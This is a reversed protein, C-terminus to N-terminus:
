KFIIYLLDMSVLRVRKEFIFDMPPFVMPPHVIRSVTAWVNPMEYLTFIPLMVHPVPCGTRLFPLGGYAMGKGM